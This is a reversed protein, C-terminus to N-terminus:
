SLDLLKNVRFLFFGYGLAALFYLMVEINLHM